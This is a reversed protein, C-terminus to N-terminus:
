VTDVRMKYWFISRGPFIVLKLKQHSQNIAFKFEGSREIISLQRKLERFQEHLEEFTKQITVERFYWFHFKWIM